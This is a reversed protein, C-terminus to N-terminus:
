ILVSFRTSPNILLGDLDRMNYANAEDDLIPVPDPMNALRSSFGSSRLLGLIRALKITHLTEASLGVTQETLTDWFTQELVEYDLYRIWGHKLHFKSILPQVSHLNTGFPGIEAEAWDIVGVLQCTEGNVMINCIGFDKHLLVMPLSM